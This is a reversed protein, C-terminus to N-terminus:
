TSNIYNYAAYYVKFLKAAQVQWSEPIKDPHIQVVNKVFAKKCDEKSAGANLGLAEYADNADLISQKIKIFSDNPGEGSLGSEKIETLLHNFDDFLQQATQNIEYKYVFYNRCM